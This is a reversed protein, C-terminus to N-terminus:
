LIEWENKSNLYQISVCGAYGAFFDLPEFAKESDCDDSEGKFYLIDDGDLLRFKFTESSEFEIEVYDDSTYGNLRGEEIIDETIIWM